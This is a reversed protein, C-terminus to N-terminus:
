IGSSKTELYNRFYAKKAAREPGELDMKRRDFSFSDELAVLRRMLTINKEIMKGDRLIRLKVKTNPKKAKIRDQLLLCANGDYWVDTDIGVIVDGIFIAARSASAGLQTFNVRIFSSLRTDDVMKM